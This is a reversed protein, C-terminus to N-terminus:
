EGDDTLKKTIKKSGFEDPQVNSSMKRSLSFHKNHEDLLAVIDNKSANSGRRNSQFLSRLNKNVKLATNRKM